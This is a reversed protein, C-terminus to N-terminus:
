WLSESLGAASLIALCNMSAPKLIIAVLADANKPFPYLFCFSLCPKQQVDGHPQYRLYVIFDVRYYVSRGATVLHLVSELDLLAARFNLTGYVVVIDLAWAIHSAITILSLSIATLVRCSYWTYYKQTQFVLLCTAYKTNQDDPHQLGSMNRDKRGEACLAPFRAPIATAFSPFM